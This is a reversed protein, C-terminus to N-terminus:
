NGIQAPVQKGAIWDAIVRVVLDERGLFGHYSMAKCPGSQPPDGGQVEVFNVKSSASLKNKLAVAEQFPCVKCGDDRHHVLLVPLTIRSV